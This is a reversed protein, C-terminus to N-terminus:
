SRRCREILARQILVEILRHVMHASSIQVTITARNTPAKRELSRDM